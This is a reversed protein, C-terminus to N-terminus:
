EHLEERNRTRPAPVGEDLALWADLLSRIAPVLARAGFVVRRRLALLTPLARPERLLARAVRGRKIAGGEDRCRNLLGPLAESATDSVARLVLWPVGAAAAVAVCGFSELDVVAPIDAGGARDGLEAKVAVTDAIAGATVVRGRV